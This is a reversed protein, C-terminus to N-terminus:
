KGLFITEESQRMQKLIHTLHVTHVVLFLLLLVLKVKKTSDIKLIAGFTSTISAKVEPLRQLVENCYVALLWAPKPVPQLPPPEEFTPALVLRSANAKTFGQCDTLYHLIHQHWAESHQETLKKHLQTSSNGM